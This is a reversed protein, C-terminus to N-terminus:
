VRSFPITTPYEVPEFEIKRLTGVQIVGTMGPGTYVGVFAASRIHCVRSDCAVLSREFATPEEVLAGKVHGIGGHCQVTRESATTHHVVLHEIRIEPVADDM